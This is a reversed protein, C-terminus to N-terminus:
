RQVSRVLREFAKSAHKEANPDRLLRKFHNHSLVLGYAEHAFQECDIDPRFHGAEVCLRVAGTMFSLLNRQTAVLYDRTRGERDDLEVSATIFICGGPNRPNSDWDVWLEFLKKLRPLGRPAKLAPKIVIEQFRREGEKLVELQLDEKSGFHAFLGSKSLNLEDALAGITVGEIGLRGAVMYARDIIRERTEAGKSM